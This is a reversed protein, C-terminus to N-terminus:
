TSFCQVWTGLDLVRRLQGHWEVVTRKVLKAPILPFTEALWFWDSQKSVMQRDGSITPDEDAGVQKLDGFAVHALDSPNPLEGLGLIPLRDVRLFRAATGKQALWMMAYYVM